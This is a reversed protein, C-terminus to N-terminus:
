AYHSGWFWLSNLMDSGSELIEGTHKYFFM